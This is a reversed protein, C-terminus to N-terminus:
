VDFTDGIDLDGVDSMGDLPDGDAADRAWLGPEFRSLEPAPHQAFFEHAIATGLVTGVVSGVLGGALMSGFGPAGSASGFARELTGPQRMEARTAYRALAQPDSLVPTDDRATAPAAGRLEELVKRRQEPTLRAFAEAHAQEIAEPPATRLLYRYRAIAQEDDTPTSAAPPRPADGFIRDFLGMATREQRRQPAETAGFM